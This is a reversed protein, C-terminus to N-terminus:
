GHNGRELRWCPLCLLKRQHLRLRSEMAAESCRVCSQSPEIRAPPPIPAESESITLLDDESADLLALATQEKTLGEPLAPRKAYIRLAKKAGDRRYITYVHKGHDKFILNGKGYTCGLMLQIADVACSNNEVVAVLEEDESRKPGFRGLVAKAVRYGIVLGPCLHGHFATANGLLNDDKVIM